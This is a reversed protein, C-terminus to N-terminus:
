ADDVAPATNRRPVLRSQKLGEMPPGIHSLNGACAQPQHNYLAADFQMVAVNAAFARFSLSRCEDDGQREEFLRLCQIGRYLVMLAILVLIRLRTITRCIGLDYRPRLTM